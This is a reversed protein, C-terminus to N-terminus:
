TAPMEGIEDLLLTGGDAMEILGPKAAVANTFAGKEHGFLESELLTETVAACNIEVFPGSRRQSAKHVARAFVEKGVGTEGLILVGIQSRAIQQIMHHLSQMQPDSVIIDRTTAPPMMGNAPPAQVKAALQYPSSGDRPCCAV